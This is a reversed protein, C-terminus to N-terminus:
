GLEFDSFQRKKGCGKDRSRFMFLDWCKPHAARVRLLVYVHIAIVCVRSKIYTIDRVM